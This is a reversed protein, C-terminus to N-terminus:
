RDVVASVRWFWVLANIRFQRLFQPVQDVAALLILQDRRDCFILPPLSLRNVLKFALSLAL